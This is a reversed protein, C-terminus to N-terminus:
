RLFRRETREIMRLSRAPFLNKLEKLFAKESTLFDVMCVGKSTSAVFVNKLFPSYFSAYYIKEM